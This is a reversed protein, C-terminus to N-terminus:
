RMPRWAWVCIAIVKIGSRKVSRRRIEGIVHMSREVEGNSFEEVWSGRLDVLWLHGQSGRHSENGVPRISRSTGLQYGLSM